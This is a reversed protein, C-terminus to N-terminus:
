WFHDWITGGGDGDRADAFTEQWPPLCFFFFVTEFIKIIKIFFFFISTLPSLFPNMALFPNPAFSCYGNERPPGFLPCEVIVVLVMVALLFSSGWCYTLPFFSIQFTLLPDCFWFICVSLPQQAWPPPPPPHLPSENPWWRWVVGGILEWGWEAGGM